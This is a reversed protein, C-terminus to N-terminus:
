IDRNYSFHAGDIMAKKIDNDHFCDLCKIAKHAYKEAEILTEKIAGSTVLMDRALQFDNEDRQKKQM